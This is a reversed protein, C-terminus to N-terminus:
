RLTGPLYICIFFFLSSSLREKEKTNLYASFFKKAELSTQMSSSSFVSM